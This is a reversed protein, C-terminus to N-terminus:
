WLRTDGPRREIPREPLLSKDGYHIAQHTLNSTCILFEPNLIDPNRNEIDDIWIPNMHHVLIKDRIEYGPIGLDCGMDRIIVLDRVKKWEYSRYFRQNFYRDWGWSQRGVVGTLKLYDFREEISTLELLDSYRKIKM